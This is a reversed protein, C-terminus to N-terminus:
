DDADGDATASESHRGNGPNPLTAALHTGSGPQSEVRVAGGLPTIREKMGRLGMSSQARVAEPDFGRGNDRISLTVDGNRSGLEIEVQTAQAHRGVNALAEQAVRFLAQQHALPLDTAGNARFDVEVGQRDSWTEAHTRLASRLGREDLEAPRLELLLAQM